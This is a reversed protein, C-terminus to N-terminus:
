AYMQRDADEETVETTIREGEYRPPMAGSESLYFCTGKHYVEYGNFQLLIVIHARIDTIWACPRYDLLKNERYFHYSTPDSALIKAHGRLRLTREVETLVAQAAHLSDVSAVLQRILGADSTLCETATETYHVDGIQAFAIVRDGNLAVVFSENSLEDHKTTAFDLFSASSPTTTYPLSKAYQAYLSALEGARSLPWTEVHM